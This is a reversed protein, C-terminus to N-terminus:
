KNVRENWMSILEYENNMARTRIGCWPCEIYQMNSDSPDYKYTWSRNNVDCGCFPCPKLDMIEGGQTCM